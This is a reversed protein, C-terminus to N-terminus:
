QVEREKIHFGYSSSMQRIKDSLGGIRIKEPYENSLNLFYIILQLGAGDVSEVQAMDIEMSSKTDAIEKLFPDIKHWIKKVNRIKVEKELKMKEGM